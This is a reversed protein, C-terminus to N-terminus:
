KIIKSAEESNPFQTMLQEACKEADKEEGLQKNVQQCLLLSQATPTAVDQYRYLFAQAKAYDQKEANLEAMAYLATSLKPSKKLAERLYHEARETKGAKQLCVGANTYAFEPTKYLPDQLAKLFEDVAAQYQELNCLFYGYNNRLEPDDPALWIAKRFHRNATANNELRSQLLAYYHNALVSRPDQALARSLKEDALELRNKRLYEAGLKANYRAAQENNASSRLGSWSSNSGTSCASLFLLSGLLSLLGVYPLLYRHYYNSYM